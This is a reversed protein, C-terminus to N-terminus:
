PRLPDAGHNIPLRDPGNSLNCRGGSREPYLMLTREERLETASSARIARYGEQLVARRVIWHCATHTSAVLEDESVEYHDRLAPDLLDLVPDVDVRISVLDRPRHRYAPDGQVIKDYEALAGAQTYATYLCAIRPRQLNWRGRARQMFTFHLPEAGAPVHRWVLRRVRM